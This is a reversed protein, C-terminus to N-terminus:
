RSAALKQFVKRFDEDTGEGPGATYTIVGKSDFAMKTSHIGVGYDRLMTGGPYAVPWTWGEMKAHEGMKALDQFSDYSVAYFAVKDAFEPYIGKM